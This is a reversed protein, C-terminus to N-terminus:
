VPEEEAGDEEEKESFFHPEEVESPALQRQSLTDENIRLALFHKVHRRQVFIACALSARVRTCRRPSFRVNNQFPVRRHVPENMTQGGNKTQIPFAPSGTAKRNGADSESSSPGPLLM